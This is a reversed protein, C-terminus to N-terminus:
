LDSIDMIGSALPNKFEISHTASIWSDTYNQLTGGNRRNLTDGFEEPVIYCPDISQNDLLFLRKAFSAPFCSQEEFRKIPVFVIRSSGMDVAELSLKAVLDNPTYRTLDKKYKKSIALIAKPSGYLFRTDGFEGFETGLALTELAGDVNSLTTTLHASGAERMIPYIGGATKAKVGNALTVEGMKGNWYINSLSIRFQQYMRKRQMDLYNSLTGANAYKLLEIRGFRMAKIIMQIYNTREITNYRVYNSIYDMGDAEVPSLYSLVLSGVAGTSIVPLTEGTMATVEITAGNGNPTINTITGRSNDPYVVIMDKSVNHKNLIPISQTTGASIQSGIADSIIPDRGFGIESYFFEDSQKKIPQKMSLIKLDLYQKPAADYIISRTVRQLVGTVAHGYNSAYGSGLPNTHMNQLHSDTVVQAGYNTAQEAKPMQRFIVTRKKMM